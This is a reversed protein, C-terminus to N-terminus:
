FCKELLPHLEGERLPKEWVHGVSLTQLRGCMHAANKPRARGWQRARGNGALGLRVRGRRRAERTRVATSVGGVGGGHRHGHTPHWSERRAVHKLRLNDEELLAGVGRLALRLEDGVDVRTLGDDVDHAGREPRAAHILEDVVVLAGDGDGVITGREHLQQLDHM